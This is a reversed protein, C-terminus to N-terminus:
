YLYVIIDGVDNNLAKVFAYAGKDEVPIDSIDGKYIEDNKVDYVYINTSATARFPLKVNVNSVLAELVFTNSSRKLIKGYTTENYAGRSSSFTKNPTMISGNPTDPLHKSMAGVEGNANLAMRVTDGRKLDDASIEVYAANSSYQYMTLEADEAIIYRGENGSFLIKIGKAKDGLENITDYVGTVIGAGTYSTDIYATNSLQAVVVGANYEDDINYGTVMYKAENTFASSDTISFKTDDESGAYESPVGFVLTEDDLWFERESPDAEASTFEFKSQTKIWTRRAAYSDLTIKGDYEGPKVARDIPYSIEKIEDGSTVRLKALGRRVKRSPALANYIEEHTTYTIDDVLVKDDSVFVKMEGDETFAKIRVNCDEDNMVVSVIYAILSTKSSIGSKIAIIEGEVNLYFTTDVGLKIKEPAISATSAIIYNDSVMYTNDGIVCEEGDYSSVAGEVPAYTSIEISTIEGDESMLVGLVTWEKIDSLTCIKGNKTIIPYEADPDVEIENGKYKNTITNNRESVGDAVVNIYDSVICFDIGSDSNNDILKINGTKPILENEKYMGFSKGTSRKNKIVAADNNVRYNKDETYITNTDIRDIDSAKIITVKSLKDDTYYFELEQEEKEEGSYYYEVMRGTLLSLDYVEQVSYKSMNFKNDGIYAGRGCQFVAGVSGYPTANLVDKDARIKLNQYLVDEDEIKYEKTAGIYEPRLKHEDFLNYICLAFEGNTVANNDSLEIDVLKREVAAKIYGNPYGGFHEAYDTYGMFSAIMKCLASYSVNGEPAFAKEDVGQMIKESVVYSLAESGKIDDFDSDYNKIVGGINKVGSFSYLIGAAEIRTIPDKAIEKMYLADEMIGLGCLVEIAKEQNQPIEIEVESSSSGGGLWPNVDSAMTINQCSMCLLLFLAAVGKKRLISRKRKM